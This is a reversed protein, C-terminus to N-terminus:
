TISWHLVVAGMEKYSQNMKEHRSPEYSCSYSYALLGVNDVSMGVTVVMFVSEIIGFDWYKKAFMVGMISISILGACFFAVFSTCINKFQRTGTMYFVLTLFCFLMVLSIMTGKESQYALDIETAM